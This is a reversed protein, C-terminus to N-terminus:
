GYVINFSSKVSEAFVEGRSIVWIETSQLLLSHADERSPAGWTEEVPLPNTRKIDHRPRLGHRDVQWRM